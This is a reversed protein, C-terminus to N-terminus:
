GTFNPQQSVADAPTSAVVAGPSTAAPTTAAVTAAPLAASPSASASPAPGSALEQAGGGANPTPVPPKLSKPTSTTTTTTGDDPATVVFAIDSYTQDSGAEQSPACDAALTYDGPTADEPVTIEGSWDGTTDDSNIFSKLIETKTGSPVMRLVVIDGANRCPTVSQVVIITGPPGEHAPGSIAHADWDATQASAGGPLLLAAAACLFAFAVVFSRAM